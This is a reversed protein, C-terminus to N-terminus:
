DEIHISGSTTAVTIHQPVEQYMYASDFYPNGKRDGNVKVGGSISKLSLTYEKVDPVRIDVSGSTSKVNVNITNELYLKISSSTSTASIDDIVSDTVKVSGSTSTVVAKEAVVSELKVSASTSTASLTQFSANKLEIGGSKTSLTANGAKIATAEISSSISTGEFIEFNSSYIEIHGSSAKAYGTTANVKNIEINGSSNTLAISNGSFNSVEINGSAAAAILDSVRKPVEVVLKRNKANQPIDFEIKEGGKITQTESGLSTSLTATIDEKDSTILIISTAATGIMLKNSNSNDVTVTEEGNFFSFMENVEVDIKNKANCKVASFAVWIGILLLLIAVIKGKSNTIM